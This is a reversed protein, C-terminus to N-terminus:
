RAPQGQSGPGVKEACANNSALSIMFFEARDLQKAQLSVGDDGDKWTIYMTQITTGPTMGDYGSSGYEGRGADSTKQSLARIFASLDKLPKGYAFLRGNCFALRQRDSVSTEYVTWLTGQPKDLFFGAGRAVAQAEEVTMGTKFGDVDFARVPSVAILAALLLPGIKIM